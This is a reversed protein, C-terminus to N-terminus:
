AAAGRIELYRAFAVTALFSILAIATAVDLYSIFGSTFVMLAAQAMILAALLDLAVVRDPVSPGLLFRVSTLVIAAFLMLQALAWVTDPIDIADFYM